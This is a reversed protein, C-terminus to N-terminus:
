HGTSLGISNGVPERYFGSILLYITKYASVPINYGPPVIVNPGSTGLYLSAYTGVLIYPGIPWSADM